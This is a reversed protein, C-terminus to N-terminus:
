GIGTPNCNGIKFPHLINLFEEPFLIVHVFAKILDHGPCEM